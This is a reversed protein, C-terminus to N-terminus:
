KIFYGWDTSSEALVVVKYFVGIWVGIWVGIGVEFGMTREVVTSRNWVRGGGSGEKYEKGDLTM